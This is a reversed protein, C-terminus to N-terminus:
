KNLLIDIESSKQKLNYRERHIFGRLEDIRKDQQAIKKKLLRIHEVAIEYETKSM